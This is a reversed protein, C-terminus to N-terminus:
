LLQIAPTVGSDALAQYGTVNLHITDVNFYTADSADAFKSDSISDYYIENGNPHGWLNSGYSITFEALMLTRLAARATNFGGATQSNLFSADRDVVGIIVVKAGVSLLAARYTDIRSKVIAGTITSRSALDNTGACLVAINKDLYPNIYPTVETGLADNIAPSIGFETGEIQRSAVGNQIGCWRSGLNQLTKRAIESYVSISANAGPDGIFSDGQFLVFKGVSSTANNIPKFWNRYLIGWLVKSDINGSGAWTFSHTKNSFQSASGNINACFEFFEFNQVGDTLGTREFQKFGNIYFTNVGAGTKRVEFCGISLPITISEPFTGVTANVSGQIDYEQAVERRARIYTGAAGGANLAGFEMATGNADTLIFCGISASNDVFKYTGGDGPNYNWNVRFNTGNGTDGVDATFSSAHDNTITGNYSNSILNKLSANKSYTGQIVLRDLSDWYSTVGDIGMTNKLYYVVANYKAKYADPVPDGEGARNTFFTTAESQTPIGSMWWAIKKINM